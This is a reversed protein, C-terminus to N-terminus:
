LLLDSQKLQALFNTLTERIEEETADGYQCMMEKVIQEETVDDELQQFIFAGVDNLKVFGSFEAANDGVPVAIMKDAVTNIVFNYKLKM